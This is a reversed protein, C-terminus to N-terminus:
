KNEGINILSSMSDVILIKTDKSKDKLMFEAMMKAAYDKTAIMSKPIITKPEGGTLEVILDGFQEVEYFVVDGNDNQEAVMKIM